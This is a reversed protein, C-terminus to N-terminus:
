AACACARGASAIIAGAIVRQGSGRDRVMTPQLSPSFGYHGHMLYSREYIHSHGSLVLDVGYSELLSVFNTRMLTMNGFNDDLNDSNHSGKTYPPSHWFAILWENTNAELDQQLWNWM